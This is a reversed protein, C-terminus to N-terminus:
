KLARPNVTFIVRPRGGTRETTAILWDLDDLLDLGAQVCERNSLNSWGRRYVDRATFQGALEGKRIKSIIAKATTSEAEASASYIREAHTALYDAFALARILSGEEIPGACKDVLHNILALAPVTKRYKAFHGELSAPLEGSRLRREHETRWEEFQAQAAEDFRLFPIWEDPERKCGISDPDLTDLRRFTDFAVLRAESDLFRDVNQWELDLDPYVMLSFRQILGDDGAGGVNARRIYEAIRGPQTSGLLSLCAHEIRTQGRVIRDFTYRSRGNWGTLFFGRAGANQEQDLYKLLSVLEDRFALVGNQNDAMVEGLAEYTCDNVIYRRARPEM